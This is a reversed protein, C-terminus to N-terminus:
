WSFSIENQLSNALHRNLTVTLAWTKLACWPWNRLWFAYLFLCYCWLWKSCLFNFILLVVLGALMKTLHLILHTDSIEYGLRIIFGSCAVTFHITEVTIVIWVLCIINIFADNSRMSIFLLFFTFSRYLLFATFYSYFCMPYFLYAWQLSVSHM